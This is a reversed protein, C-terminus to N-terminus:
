ELCNYFQAIYTVMLFTNYIIMVIATNTQRKQRKGMLREPGSSNESFKWFCKKQM